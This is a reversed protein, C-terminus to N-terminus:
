RPVTAQGATLQQTIRAAWAEIEAWDRFDGYEAKVGKVIAREVISLQKSNLAGSFLHHGWAHTSEVLRSIDVPETKAGHGLPGVSFLWVMRLALESRNRAVFEVAEQMWRGYYVSSGIVVADYRSPDEAQNVPLTDVEAGSNQITAAVREAVEHTSGHKSAYTVLVRMKILEKRQPNL